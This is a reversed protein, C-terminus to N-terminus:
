DAVEVTATKGSNSTTTEEPSDVLFEAFTQVPNEALEGLRHKITECMLTIRLLKSIGLQIESELKEHFKEHEELELNLLNVITEHDMDATGMHTPEESM